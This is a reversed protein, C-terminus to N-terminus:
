RGSMTSTTRCIPDETSLWPPGAHPPTVWRWRMARRASLPLRMWGIRSQCAGQYRSWRWCIARWACMARREREGGLVQRLRHVTVRLYAAAAAPEEEPRLLEALQERHLRQRPASVLCKFLQAAKRHTWAEPPLLKTGCWVAFGGLTRVRLPADLQDSTAASIDAIPEVRAELPRQKGIYRSRRRGGERWYAYWYPGHGPAGLVCTPCAPKNCRRFQQSYTVHIAADPQGSAM